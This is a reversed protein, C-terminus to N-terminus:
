VMDVALDLETSDDLLITESPPSAFPNGPNQSWDNANSPSTTKPKPKPKPPPPASLQRKDDKPKPKPKPAPPAVADARHTKEKSFSSAHIDGDVVTQPASPFAWDSKDAHQSPSPAFPDLAKRPTEVTPTKRLLTPSAFPNSSGAPAAFPNSPSRMHQRATAAKKTPEFPNSKNRRHTKLVHDTPTTVAVPAKPKVVMSSSRQPSQNSRNITRSPSRSHSKLSSRSSSTSGLRSAKRSRVLPCKLNRISFVRECIQDADPRASPDLSFMDALLELVSDTFGHEQPIKYKGSVVSLSSDGFADAFFMLKYLVCGLAWIDTKYTLPLGQYMDCMEPARYNPTTYKQVIEECIPIPHSEGPKLVQTTASGFDCLKFSGKNKSLLVNELKLDRHIIPPEHQHLATVALCVDSFIKLVEKQDFPRKLRRNMIDVVHGGPCLEMLMLVEMHKGSPRVDSAFLSVINHHKPFKAMFEIERTTVDLTEQDLVLVKKLAYKEGAGDEALYVCGFGGEAIMNEIRLSFDDIVIDQGVDAGMPSQSSSGKFLRGARSLM